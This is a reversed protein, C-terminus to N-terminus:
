LSSRGPNRLRRGAPWWTLAVEVGVVIVAMCSWERVIRSELTTLGFTLPETFRILSFVNMLAFSRIMFARHVGIDRLRIAAFAISTTVLWLAGLVVLPPRCLVCSSQIGLAMAAPAAIITAAVYIRGAIRHVRPYRSRLRQSFQSFGLLIALTAPFVHAAISRPRTWYEGYSAEAYEVFRSVDRRIYYLTVAILAAWWIGVALRRPTWKSFHV